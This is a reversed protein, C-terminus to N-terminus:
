AVSLRFTYAVSIVADAIKDSTPKNAQTLLDDALPKSITDSALIVQRIYVDDGLVVLAAHAQYCTYLTPLVAIAPKYEGLWAIFNNTETNVAAEWNMKNKAEIAELQEKSAVFKFSNRAKLSGHEVWASMSTYTNLKITAQKALLILPFFPVINITKGDKYTLELRAHPVTAGDADVLRIRQWGFDNVISAIDNDDARWDTLCVDSTDIAATQQAPAPIKTEIFAKIDTVTAINTNLTNM